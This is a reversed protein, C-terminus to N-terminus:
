ESAHQDGSAQKAAYYSRVRRRHLRSKLPAEWAVPDLEAARTLNADFQEVVAAFAADGATTQNADAVM